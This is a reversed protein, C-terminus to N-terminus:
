PKQTSTHTGREFYSWQGEPAQEELPEWVKAEIMHDVLQHEGEAVQVVEEILGGGIRSELEAIAEATYQPEPELNVKTFTREPKYNKDGKMKQIHPRRQAASRIGEPFNGMIEGDWEADKLRTDIDQDKPAIINTGGSTQVFQFAEPDESIQMQIREQWEDWGAPTAEEIIKLRHRTLAETSQRYVSSEPIQKLKDLTANYHYLLTSRPSPHTVLGTLGTPAGAELFKGSRVSALLRAAARM